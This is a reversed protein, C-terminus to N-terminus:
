RVVGLNVRDCSQQNTSHNPTYVIDVTRTDVRRYEAKHGRLETPHSPFKNENRALVLVQMARNRQEDDPLFPHPPRFRKM